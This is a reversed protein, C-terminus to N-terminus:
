LGNGALLNLILPNLMPNQLNLDHLTPETKVPRSSVSSYSPFLQPQSKLQTLTLLLNLLDASSQPQDQVPMTPQFVVPSKSTTEPTQPQSAGKCASRVHSRFFPFILTQM